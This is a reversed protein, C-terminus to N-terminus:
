ERAEMATHSEVEQEAGELGRVTYVKVPAERGRVTVEGLPAVEVEASLRAQVSESFILPCGLTKTLSELRQAVNVPDGIVTPELHRTGVLGMAVEGANIGIGIELSVGLAEWARALMPLGQLMEQGSRVACTAPDLSRVSKWFVALIADGPTKVITGGYRAIIDEVAAQYRNLIAMTDAASLREATGTYGRIDSFLIAAELTRIEGVGAAGPRGFFAPVFRGLLSAAKGSEAVTVMGWTLAVGLECYFLYMWLGKTVLLERALLVGALMLLFVAGVERIGHLRRAVAATALCFLFMLGLMSAPSVPRLFRGSILTQLANAQIEPGPMAGLATWHVDWDERGIIVAKGDYRRRGEEDHLALLETLPRPRITGRPGSWNVLLANWTKLRPIARVNDGRVVEIGSASVEDAEGDAHGGGLSLLTIREGSLVPASMGAVRLSSPGTVEADGPGADRFRLFGLLSLALYERGTDRDRVLLPMSRVAENPQHAVPSGVGWVAGAIPQVPSTLGVSGPEVKPTAAVVVNGAQKFAEALEADEYPCGREFWTDFVIVKAGWRHLRRAAEAYARRPVKCGSQPSDGPVRLSDYATADPGIDVTEVRPDPPRASRLALVLDFARVEIFSLWPAFLGTLLVALAAITVQGLLARARRRGTM